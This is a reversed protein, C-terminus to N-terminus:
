LFTLFFPYVKEKHATFPVTNVHSEHPTSFKVSMHEINLTKVYNEFFLTGLITCQINAVAFPIVLTRTKGEM